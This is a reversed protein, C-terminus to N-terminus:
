PTSLQLQFAANRQEVYAKMWAAEDEFEENTYLKFPDEYAADRVQELIADIRAQVAGTSWAGALLERLANKYAALRPPDNLIYTRTMVLKHFAFLIDNEPRYFGQDRDWPLIMYRGSVPSKYLYLNEADDGQPGALYGDGEGTIMEAAMFRAFADVDFLAPLEAPRHHIVDHLYRIGEADPPLEEIKALWMSPVYRWLEDGLWDLDSEAETFEYLQNVPPGLRKRLMERGLREEVGYLGKYQGNVYLRCHVYRPAPIGLAAYVPYQLRARMMSPDHIVADLKLTSLKHFERDPLFLDFELRLSPKPNGPIRSREGSPRLGVRAYVEGQWTVTCERWTNNWPDAVIADWDSGSVALDYRAVVAPDFPDPGTSGASSSSRSEGGGDGCGALIAAM